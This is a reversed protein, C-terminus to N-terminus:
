KTLILMTAIGAGFGITFPTKNNTIFKGIKQFGNPKIEEKSIEPIIYSEINSTKMFPSSNTVSLSVPYGEKKSGWKFDIYMENPITLKVIEHQASDGALAVGTVEIEYSLSDSAMSLVLTTDNKFNTKGKIAELEAKTKILAAAIIKKDKNAKEVKTLLAKQEQTLSEELSRLDKIDAQLTKKTYKLKGNEVIASDMKDTIAELLMETKAVETEHKELRGNYLFSMILILFILVGILINKPNILKNMNFVWQAEWIWVVLVV